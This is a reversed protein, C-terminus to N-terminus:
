QERRQRSLKAAGRGFAAEDSDSSALSKAQSNAGDEACPRGSAGAVTRARARLNQGKIADGVESSAATIATAATGRHRDKRRAM